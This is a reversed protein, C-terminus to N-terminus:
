SSSRARGGASVEVLVIAGEGQASAIALRWGSQTVGRERTRVPFRELSLARPETLGEDM